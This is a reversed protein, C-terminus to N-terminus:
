KKSFPDTRVKTIIPAQVEDTEGARLFIFFAVVIFLSLYLLYSVALFSWLGNINRQFEISLSTNVIMIQHIITLVISFFGTFVTVGAILIFDYKYTKTQLIDQIINTNIFSALISICTGFFGLTISAFLLYGELALGFGEIKFMNAYNRSIIGVIGSLLAIIVISWRFRNKM